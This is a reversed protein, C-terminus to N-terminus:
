VMVLLLFILVVILLARNFTEKMLSKFTFPIEEFIDPTLFLPIVSFFLIVTGVTFLVSFGFFATLLGGILPGLAAALLHLTFYLSVERGVKKSESHEVFDLHVGYNFLSGRLSVLIPALYFLFSYDALFLLALYYMIMFPTSFLIAHKTGKKSVIKAIPYAVVVTSFSILFFFFLIYPISYGLNYLYIPVFISILSQAFTSLSISAYLENMERNRLLLPIHHPKQFSM